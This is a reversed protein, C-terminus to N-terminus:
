SFGPNQKQQKRQNVQKSQEKKASNKYEQYLTELVDAETSLVKDLLIGNKSYVVEVWQWSVNSYRRYKRHCVRQDSQASVFEANFEEYEVTKIYTIKM